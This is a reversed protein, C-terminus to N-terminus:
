RAGPGPEGSSPKPATAQLGLEKLQQTDVPAPAGTLPDGGTATKPFAMVDRISEHGALIAVIRDLGFAIGGHPPAGYKLAELLFGFREQAEQAGIGIAEFVKSQVEPTNIRISGGGIETGNLVVDYNRSRWTAPDGDLDGTPASFPHHMPDLRQEDENWEFAPFDVVWFIDNVEPPEVGIALRLQGLVNAAVNARDAVILMTDGENAGLLSAARRM